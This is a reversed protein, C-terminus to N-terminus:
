ITDQPNEESSQVLGDSLGQVTQLAPLASVYHGLPTTNKSIKPSTLKTNIGDDELLQRCVRVMHPQATNHMM